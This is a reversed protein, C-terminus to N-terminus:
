VAELCDRICVMFDAVFYGLFLGLNAGLCVM